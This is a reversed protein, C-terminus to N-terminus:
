AGGRFQRPKGMGTVDFDDASFGNSIAQSVLNMAHDYSEVTALHAYPLPITRSGVTEDRYCLTPNFDSLKSLAWDMEEGTMGELRLSVVIEGLQPKPLLKTQTTM